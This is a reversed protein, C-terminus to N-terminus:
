IGIKPSNTKEGNIRESIKRRSLKGVNQVSSAELGHGIRSKRQSNQGGKGAKQV